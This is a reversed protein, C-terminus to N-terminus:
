PCIEEGWDWDYYCQNWDNQGCESGDGDCVGCVDYAAWGNCNGYCDYSACAICSSGDGGCVGCVDDWTTGDCVGSCDYYDCTPPPNAPPSTTSGGGGTAAYWESFSNWITGADDIYGQPALCATGDDVYTSGDPLQVSIPAVITATTGDPLVVTTPGQEITITPTIGPDNQLINITNNLQGLLTGYPSPVLKSLIGGLSYAMQQGNGNISADLLQALLVNTGISAVAAAVVPAELATAVLGTASLLQKGMDAATVDTCVIPVIDGWTAAQSPDQPAPTCTMAHANCVGLAIALGISSIVLNRM